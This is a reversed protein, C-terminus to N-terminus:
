NLGLVLKVGYVHVHYLAWTNYTPLVEVICVFCCNCTSTESSKSLHMTDVLACSLIM